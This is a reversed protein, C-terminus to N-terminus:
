KKMEVCYTKDKDFVFKFYEDCIDTRETEIKEGDVFIKYKGNVFIGCSAVGRAKFSINENKDEYYETIKVGSAKIVGYKEGDYLSIVIKNVSKDLLDCPIKKTGKLIKGNVSICNILKGDGETKIEYRKGFYKLNKVSYGKLPAAFTLGGEDFSIGLLIKVIIKYWKRVTYTQWTGPDCNWRDYGPDDTEYEYSEGEPCTLMSMWYEVKKIWHDILETHGTYKAIRLIDEEVVGWTEHLQNADGDYTGGWLVYNIFTLKNIGNKVIFDILSAVKKGLLEDHFDSDWFYGCISYVDRRKMEDADVSFALFGKEGNYFTKFFNEETRKATSRAIAETEGDGYLAALKEMGRLANYAVSNNFLSIDRGTEQVCEPYDPFLSPSIFLGTGSKEIKLMKYFIKKAFGYHKELASTDGTNDIYDFLLSIYIGQAAPTAYQRVSNDPRFWHAWGKEEDATEEFYDLMGRILEGDQWCAVTTDNAVMSDWGWSWYRSTKARIIGNKDAKASEHFLPAIKCFDDIAKVGTKIKPLNDYVAKYRTKQKNLAIDARNIFKETEAKIDKDDAAFVVAFCSTGKGGHALLCELRSNIKTKDAVMKGSATIGFNLGHSVNEAKQMLSSFVASDHQSSLAIKDEKESESMGGYVANQSFEWKKWERNLGYDRSDLDGNYAPIFQTTEFLTLRFDCPKGGSLTFLINGEVAYVGLKYTENDASFDCELGYPAIYLNKYDPTYRRDGIKISPRFCDFINSKFIIRNGDKATPIFYEIQKVGSKDYLFALRGDAFWQQPLPFGNKSFIAGNKISYKM